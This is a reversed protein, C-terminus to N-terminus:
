CEAAWHGYFGQKNEGVDRGAAVQEPEWHFEKSPFESGDLILFVLNSVRQEFGPKACKKKTYDARIQVRREWLYQYNNTTFICM